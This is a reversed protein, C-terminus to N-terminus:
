FGHACPVVMPVSFVVLMMAGIGEVSPQQAMGGLLCYLVSVGYCCRM